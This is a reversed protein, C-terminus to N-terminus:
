HRLPLATRAWRTCINQRCIPCATNGTADLIDALCTYGILHGYRTRVPDNSLRCVCYPLERFISLTTWLEPDEENMDAAYGDPNEDECTVGFDNWCHFCRMDEQAITAIDVKELSDVFVQSSWAPLSDARNSAFFSFRAGYAAEALITANALNTIAASLEQPGALIYAQTAESFAMVEPMLLFVDAYAQGMPSAIFEFYTENNIIGAELLLGIMDTLEQDSNNTDMTGNDM